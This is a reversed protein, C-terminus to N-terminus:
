AFGEQRVVVPSGANRPCPHNARLDLLFHAYDEPSMTLVGSTTPPALQKVKFGAIQDEDVAISVSYAAIGAMNALKQTVSANKPDNLSVQTEILALPTSCHRCYECGDIDVMGVEWAHRKGLLHMLSEVRHWASYILSRAGTRERESM